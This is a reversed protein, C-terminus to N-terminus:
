VLGKVFVRSLTTLARSQHDRRSLHSGLSENWRSTRLKLNVIGIAEWGIGSVFGVPVEFEVPCLM